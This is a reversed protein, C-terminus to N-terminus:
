RSLNRSIVPKVMSRSCLGLHKRSDSIAIAATTDVYRGTETEYIKIEVEDDRDFVNLLEMLDRVKM